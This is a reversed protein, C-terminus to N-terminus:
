KLQAILTSYSSIEAQEITSNKDEYVKRPFNSSLTFNSIEKDDMSYLAFDYIDQVLDDAFFNWAVSKGSPYRINLVITKDSEEPKIDFRGALSYKIAILM